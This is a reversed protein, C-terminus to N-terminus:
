RRDGGRGSEPSRTPKRWAQPHSWAVTTARDGSCPLNAQLHLQRYLERKRVPDATALVKRIGGLREVLDRIQDKTLRQQTAKVSVRAKTEARRAPNRHDMRHRAPRRSRSRPSRPPTRPGPRMRHHGERRSRRRSRRRTGAARRLPRRHAWSTVSPSTSTARTNPRTRWGTNPPTAAATSPGNTTAGARCGAGRPLPSRRPANSPRSTSSSEDKRQSVSRARPGLWAPGTGTAPQTM